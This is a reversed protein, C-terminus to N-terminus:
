NCNGENRERYVFNGENKTERETLLERGPERYICNGESNETGKMEREIFVAGKM